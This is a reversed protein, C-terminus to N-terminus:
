FLRNRVGDFRHARVIPLYITSDIFKDVAKRSPTKGSKGPINITGAVNIEFGVTVRAMSLYRVWATIHPQVMRIYRNDVNKHFRPLPVQVLWKEFSMDKVPFLEAWSRVIINGDRRVYERYAKRVKVREFFGVENFYRVLAIRSNNVFEFVYENKTTDTNGAFPVIGEQECLKLFDVITQHWVYDADGSAKINNKWEDSQLLRTWVPLADPSFKRPYGTLSPM